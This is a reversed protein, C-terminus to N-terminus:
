RELEGRRLREERLEDLAGRRRLREDRLLDGLGATEQALCWDHVPPQRWTYVDGGCAVCRRKPPRPRRRSM